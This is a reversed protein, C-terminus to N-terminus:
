AAGRRLWLVAVIGDNGFVGTVGAMPACLACIKQRRSTVRKTNTVDAVFAGSSLIDYSPVGTGGVGLRCVCSVGCVASTVGRWSGLDNQWMAM